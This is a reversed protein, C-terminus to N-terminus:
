SIHHIIIFLTAVALSVRTRSGDSRSLCISRTAAFFPRLRLLSTMTRNRSLRAVSSWRVARDERHASFVLREPKAYRRIQPPSHSAGGPGIVSRHCTFDQLTKLLRELALNLRIGATPDITRM